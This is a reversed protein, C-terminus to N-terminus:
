DADNMEFYLRLLPLRFFLCPEVAARHAILSEASVRPARPELPSTSKKFYGNTGARRDKSSQVEILEIEEVTMGDLEAVRADLQRDLAACKNENFTRDRDSRAAALQQKAQLMGEVLTVM